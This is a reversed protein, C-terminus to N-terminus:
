LSMVHAEQSRSDGAVRSNNNNNEFVQGVVFSVDLIQLATGQTCEAGLLGTIRFFTEMGHRRLPICYSLLSITGTDENNTSEPVINSLRRLIM